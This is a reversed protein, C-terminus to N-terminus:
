YALNCLSQRFSCPSTSAIIDPPLNNWQGITRPYFSNNYYDCACRPKEFRHSLSSLWTDMRSKHEKQLKDCEYAALGNSQPTIITSCSKIRFSSVNATLCDNLFIEDTLLHTSQCCDKELHDIPRPFRQFGNFLHPIAHINQTLVYILVARIIRVVSVLALCSM